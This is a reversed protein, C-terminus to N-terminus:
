VGYNNIIGFWHTHVDEVCHPNLGDKLMDIRVQEELSWEGKEELIFSRISNFDYVECYGETENMLKTGNTTLHIDHISSSYCSIAGSYTFIQVDKYWEEMDTMFINIDILAISRVDDVNAVLCIYSATEPDIQSYRNYPQNAIM